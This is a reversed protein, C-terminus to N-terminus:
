IREELRVDQSGAANRLYSRIEVPSHPFFRKWRKAAKKAEALTALRGHKRQGNVDVTFRRDQM